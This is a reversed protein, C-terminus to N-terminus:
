GRLDKGTVDVINFMDKIRSKVRVGYLKEIESFSNNTSIILRDFRKSNLYYSQIFDAFFNVDSGFHKANVDETGVDDLYILKRYDIEFSGESIMERTVDVMSYINIPKLPNDKVCTLLYTKGTGCIGRLWLGKKFDFGLESVFRKDNGLFFCITKILRSTDNDVILKKGYTYLSTKAMLNFMFKADCQLKLEEFEKRDVEKQEQIMKRNQLEFHKRENAKRLVEERVFFSNWNTEALYKEIDGLKKGKDWMRWVYNKKLQEIHNRLVIEEEQKTLIYEFEDDSSISFSKKEM